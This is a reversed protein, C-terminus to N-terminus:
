ALDIAETCFDDPAARFKALSMNGDPVIRRFAAAECAVSSRCMAEITDHDLGAARYGDYIPCAHSHVLIRTPTIEMEPYMGFAHNLQELAAAVKGAAEEDGRHEEVMTGFLEGMGDFVRGYMETAREPGVDQSVETFFGGFLTFSEKVANFVEEKAM